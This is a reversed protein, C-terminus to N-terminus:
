WAYSAIQEDNPSFPTNIQIGRLWPLKARDEKKGSKGCPNRHRKKDNGVQNHHQFALRLSVETERLTERALTIARRVEDQGLRFALRNVKRISECVAESNNLETTEGSREACRFRFVEIEQDPFVSAFRLAVENIHLFSV